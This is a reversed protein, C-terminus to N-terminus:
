HAKEEILPKNNEKAEKADEKAAAKADALSINIADSDAFEVFSDDIREMKATWDKGNESTLVFLGERAIKNTAGNEGPVTYALKFQAHMKKGSEVVRTTVQPDQIESAAPNSEKLYVALYETIVQQLKAHQDPSLDDSPRMLFWSLGVIIAVMLLSVYKM